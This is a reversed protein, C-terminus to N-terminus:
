CLLLSIFFSLFAFISSLFVSSNITACNPCIENWGITENSNQEKLWDILPKFYEMLPKADIERSGVILELANKWPKSSGLKLVDGLLKGARKSQYIDCTHLPGTENAEKCLAKHFQFMLIHSVFYRIYPTNAPIHYKAGPDFDEETRKVPPSIGQYKCRLDWWKKNYNDPTTEGSFVSWRWQDMLYGFPLFAVSSLSQSLLFNIDAEKSREATKLLKIKKLHKPTSVSLALVDGVAEHFGPNAGNQYITPLNRYQLYYQIHGMEHHITVLDQMTTDTCQKIRFDKNNYFNWASAHCVVERDKPKEIMSHDWFSQPVKELGLSEFFEDSVKFMKLPTYKQQKMTATVDVSEIDYPKLIDFIRNWTQSWMNGLLHAPIHGSSPFYKEGYINILKRRVYAHLQYYLPKLQTFLRELDEEFTESEYTSRWADGADNYGGDRFGENILEVFESYLPKLHRGTADRWKVWAELLMEYDRSKSLLRTLGPELSYCQNDSLCVKASSYISSMESKVDSLRKLKTENKMAATGIDTLFKFQRVVDNDRVRQWDFEANARHALEKEKMSSALERNVMIRRNHETINTNFNWAATVFATYVSSIQQDYERLFKKARSIDTSKTWCLSINSCVLLYLLKHFM